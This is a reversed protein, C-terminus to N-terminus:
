DQQDMVLKKELFGCLSELQKIEKQQRDIKFQVFFCGSFRLHPDHPKSSYFPVLPSVLAYLVM